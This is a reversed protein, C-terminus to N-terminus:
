MKYLDNKFIHLFAMGIDIIGKLGQITIYDWIRVVIQFPMSYLYLTELWQFMWTIDELNQDKFHQYLKNLKKEIRKNFIYRLLYFLPFGEEFM